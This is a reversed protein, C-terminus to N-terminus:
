LDALPLATVKAWGPQCGGVEAPVPMLSEEMNAAFGMPGDLPRFFDDYHSPVVM